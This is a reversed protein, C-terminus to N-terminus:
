AHEDLTLDVLRGRPCDYKAYQIMNPHLDGDICAATLTAGRGNCVIM